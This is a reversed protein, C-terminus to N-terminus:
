FLARDPDTRRVLWNSLLVLVFGVVAQFAGAASAMGVDGLATLTRYVYTDIVDTTVYLQPSNRTVQYFLGFDAYFIKGISLLINIIILPKLLPLTIHWIKQWTSAGEMSAAEYYEPSIAIIGALYVISWFGGNKWLNVLTLIVPWYQPSSYWDIAHGGLSVLLHDVLGSQSDLLAFVFYNIIVYSFLYPFFLTSQYFKALWKNTDRVQNLLLAISVSAVLVTVIFLANMFLTNYIIRRADDTEFLYFFNQFGVWASGLIGQSARYDKFAVVLGLMPVYAFVFLVLVGPITMILLTSNQKWISFNRRAHKPQRGPKGADQVDRSSASRLAVSPSSARSHEQPRQEIVGVRKSLPPFASREHEM